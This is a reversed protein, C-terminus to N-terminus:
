SCHLGPLIPSREYNPCPQRYVTFVHTSGELFLRGAEETQGAMNFTISVFCLLARDYIRQLPSKGSLSRSVEWTNRELM